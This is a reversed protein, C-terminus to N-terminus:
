DARRVKHRNLRQWEQARALVLEASKIKEEPVHTARAMALWVTITGCALEDTARITFM